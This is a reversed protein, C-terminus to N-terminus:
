ILLESSEEKKPPLKTTLKDLKDKCDDCIAFFKYKDIYYKFENNIEKYGQEESRNESTNSSQINEPNQQLDAFYKLNNELNKYFYVLLPHTDNNLHELVPKVVFDIFGIQSKYISQLDKKCMMENFKQLKEIQAIVENNEIPIGINKLEENEELNDKIEETIKTYKRIEDYFEFVVAKTGTIILKKNSSLNLTLDAAHVIFAEKFKKEADKIGMNTYEIAKYLLQQNNLNIESPEVIEGAEYNIGNDNKNEILYYYFTWAIYKHMDELVFGKTQLSIFGSLKTKLKKILDVEFIISDGDKFSNHLVNNINENIIGILNIKSSLYTASTTTNGFGPHGADHFIGSFMLLAIKNDDHTTELDLYIGTISAVYLGHCFNHYMITNDRIGLSYAKIAAYYLDKASDIEPNTKLTKMIFVLQENLNPYDTSFQKYSKLDKDYKVTGEEQKYDQIEFSKHETFCKLYEEEYKKMCEEVTDNSCFLASNFGSQLLALCIILSINANIMKM